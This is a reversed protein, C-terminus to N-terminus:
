QATQKVKLMCYFCQKLRKVIPYIDKVIAQRSKLELTMIIIHIISHTRQTVVVVNSQFCYPGFSFFFLHYFIPSDYLLIPLFKLMIKRPKCLGALQTECVTRLMIFVVLQKCSTLTVREISSVLRLESEKQVHVEFLIDQLPTPRYWTRRLSSIARIPTIKIGNTAVLRPSSTALDAMHPQTM